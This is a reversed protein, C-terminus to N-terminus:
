PLRSLIQELSRMVEYGGDTRDGGDRQIILPRIGCNRAGVADLPLSDGVHLAESPEVGAERLAYQFIWPEPKASGVLASVAISSFYPALELERLLPPLRSDWNSIVGLSLGPRKLASLTPVVDPYIEWAGATSFYNYLEDFFADFERPECLSSVAELVIKKWWAVEGHRSILPQANHRSFAQKFSEELLGPDLTMGYRAAVRSYAEGVPPSPRILTNGVDFFIVRIM